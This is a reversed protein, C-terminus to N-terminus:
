EKWAENLLEYRHMLFEKFFAVNKETLDSRYDAYWLKANEEMSVTMSEALADYGDIYKKLAPKAYKNYRQKLIKYFEDVEYMVNYFPELGVIDDNLEYSDNPEGTWPGDM